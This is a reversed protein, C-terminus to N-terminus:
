TYGKLLNLLIKYTINIVTKQCLMRTQVKDTHKLLVWEILINLVLYFIAHLVLYGLSTRSGM